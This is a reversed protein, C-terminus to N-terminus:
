ILIQYHHVWLCFFWEAYCHLLWLWVYSILFLSSTQLKVNLVFLSVNRWCWSCLIYSFFSFESYSFRGSMSHLCCRFQKNWVYVVCVCLPFIWIDAYIMIMVLFFVLGSLWLCLGGGHQFHKITNHYGFRIFMFSKPDDDDNPSINRIKAHNEIILKFTFVLFFNFM